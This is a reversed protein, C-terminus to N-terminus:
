GMGRGLENWIEDYASAPRCAWPPPPEGRRRLQLGKPYHRRADQDGDAAQGGGEGVRSCHHPTFLSICVRPRFRNNTNLLIRTDEPPLLEGLLQLTVLFPTLLPGDSVFALRWFASISRSTLFWFPLPYLM